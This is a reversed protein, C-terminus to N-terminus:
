RSRDATNLLFLVFCCVTDMRAKIQELSNGELAALTVFFGAASVTKSDAAVAGRMWLFSAGPAFVVQDLAVKAV